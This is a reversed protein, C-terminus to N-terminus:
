VSASLITSCHAFDWIKELVTITFTHLFFSNREKMKSKTLSGM